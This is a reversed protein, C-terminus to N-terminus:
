SLLWGVVPLRHMWRSFPGPEQGRDAPIYFDPDTGGTPLYFEPVVAAAKVATVNDKDMPYM